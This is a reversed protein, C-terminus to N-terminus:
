EWGLIDKCFKFVGEIKSRKMYIDFVIEAIKDSSTDMNTILLMPDKFLRRGNKQYISVRVVSYTKGKIELYNWEFIGKCNHHLKNRFHIKEYQKEKSKFFTQHKLKVRLERNDKTIHLENSNRNLKSRVVFLNGIKTEFEFLDADDFGRDYVDVIVAEPNENRIATSINNVHEKTITKLNHWEGTSFLDKIEKNRKTEEIKNNQYDSLEEQTIYNSTNSSFPTSQLLRLDKGEYNIVVSNHTKYGNILKGDFARVKCLDPSKSSYQKRIESPDHLVIFYDKDRFYDVSNILLSSNLKKVDITNKLTNDFM